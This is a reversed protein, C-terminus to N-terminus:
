DTNNSVKCEFIQFMGFLLYLARRSAAIFGSVVKFEAKVVGEDSKLLGAVFACLPKNIVKRRIDKMTM